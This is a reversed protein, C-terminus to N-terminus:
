LVRDEVADYYDYDPEPGEDIDEGDESAPNPYYFELRGEEVTPQLRPAENLYRALERTSERLRELVGPDRSDNRDLAELLCYCTFLTQNEAEVPRYVWQAEPHKRNWKGLIALLLLFKGPKERIRAPFFSLWPYPKEEPKLSGSSCAIFSLEFVEAIAKTLEHIAESPM